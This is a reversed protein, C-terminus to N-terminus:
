VDARTIEKSKIHRKSKLHFKTTFYTNIIQTVTDLKENMAYAMDYKM